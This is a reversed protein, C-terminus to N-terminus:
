ELLFRLYRLLPLLLSEAIAKFTCVIINCCWMYHSIYISINAEDLIEVAVSKLLNIGKRYALEKAGRSMAREYTGSRLDQLSRLLDDSRVKSPIPHSM